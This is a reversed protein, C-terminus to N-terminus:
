ATIETLMITSANVFLYEGNDNAWTRNIVANGSSSAGIAWHLSYTVADTSSPSDVFFFTLNQFNYYAEYSGNAAIQNASYQVNLQNGSGGTGIVGIATSDRYMQFRVFTTNENHETGLPLYMQIQIKSSTAAPTISATLGTTALTGSSCVPETLLSGLVVQNVGKGSSSVPSGGNNLANGTCRVTNAATAIFDLSDNAETTFNVAGPLYLSSGHTLTVAGDFQLTFRRGADVTMATIGTTGTIDFFDGDTDIVLTSASPIDGGKTSTQMMASVKTTM